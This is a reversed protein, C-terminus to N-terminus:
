QRVATTPWIASCNVEPTMTNIKRERPLQYSTQNTWNVILDITIEYWFRLWDTVSKGPLDFRIDAILFM